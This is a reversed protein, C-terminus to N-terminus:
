QVFILDLFNGRRYRRGNVSHDDQAAEWLMETEYGADIVLAM